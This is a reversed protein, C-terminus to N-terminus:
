TFQSELYKELVKGKKLNQFTIKLYNKKPTKM